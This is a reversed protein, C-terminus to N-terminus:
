ADSVPQKAFNVHDNFKPTENYAGLVHTNSAGGTLALGVTDGYMCVVVPPQQVLGAHYAPPPVVRSTNHTFKGYFLSLNDWAQIRESPTPPNQSLM